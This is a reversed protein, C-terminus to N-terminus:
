VRSFTSSTFCEFVFKLGNNGQLCSRIWTQTSPLTALLHTHLVSISDRPVTLLANVLSVELVNTDEISDLMGIGIDSLLLSGAAEGFEFFDCNDRYRHYFNRILSQPQPRLLAIPTDIHSGFCM